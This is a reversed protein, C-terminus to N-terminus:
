AESVTKTLTVDPATITVLKSKITIGGGDIVVESSGCKFTISASADIKHFAGVFMAKGAATVSHSGGIKELIGGGVMTTRAGGVTESEPAKSLVLMGLAKETKDATCSEARTGGVLEFRAAGIKHVRAGKVTTHIGAAAITAKISGVKEGHTASCVNIAHGPGTASDAGANGGVAGDPGAKNAQSEGGGGGGGLGLAAGLAGAGADLAGNVLKDLGLQSSAHDLSPLAPLGGGGGGGSTAAEGGSYKAPGGGGSRTAEGGGSRAAEGGGGAGGGGLGTAAQIAAGVAPPTPIGTAASVAGAAAGLDGKSVADMAAGVAEVKAQVDKIPGMIQDVKSSVAQDLQQMAKAAEAKAADTVAKVALSLLAKIPDGDMEFQNGGVTTTSAGGSTLGYVANVEVKRNGGISASQAAKVTNLYGNTVKVTANAGVTVTSNVKVHKTENAATTSTKNNGTALTTDKHSAIKVEESGAKDEMRIENTGKGGPSSSTQLSTRSKGEPLAYPPMFTGNFVRGTVLPRDPNGELFEVIVEWGVRPLIMSGSTQQQSVRMWCSAHDDSKGYRDWHFQVKCRGHKDTHIEQAPAGAPAVIMATQPGDIIPQATRQPTRYKVKKPIALAHVRYVGLRMEHVAATIFYEGDLENPAGVLQLWRGAVLRPCGSEIEIAVTEAQLSELRVQALRQGEKPEIYHGPYDYIELDVGLAASASATLDLQPKKFDYDRFTIKGTATRHRQTIVSASDDTADLGAGHRYILKKEGDIPDSLTSDDEFVLLETGDSKDSFFFIGEEELLRSVFALASENYQVCYERKPYKAALRWSQSKDAIGLDGLVSSVIENVDLDQFIRCDVQGELLGLASTVHMRYVLHERADDDPSTVIVVSMVVGLFEHDAEGRGFAIRAPLGLLDDPEAYTTTRVEVEAEAVKGLRREMRLGVVDLSEIPGAQFFVSLARTDM